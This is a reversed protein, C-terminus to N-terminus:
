VTVQENLRFSGALLPTVDGIADVIELDYVCKEYEAADTDDASIYFAITGDAGGFTLGGNETTLSFVLTNTSKDRVQMRGSFGSLDIPTSADTDIETRAADKWVPSSYWVITRRLTSGKRISFSLTAPAVTISAM